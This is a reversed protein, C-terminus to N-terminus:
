GSQFIVRDMAEAVREVFEEASARTSAENIDMWIPKEWGQSQNAETIRLLSSVDRDVDGTGKVRSIPYRKQKVVKAAIAEPSTTTSITSISIAIEDRERGLLDAIQTGSARAALDLLAVEIGLLTGRFPKDANFTDAHRKALGDLSRMIRRVDAVATNRDEVRLVHGRLEDCAARLFDWAMPGRRPGDGTLAHRPQCEGQGHVALGREPIGELLVIFNRSSKTTSRATGYPRKLPMRYDLASASRIEIAITM